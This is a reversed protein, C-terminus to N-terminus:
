HANRNQKRQQDIDAILQHRSRIRAVAEQHDRETKRANNWHHYREMLRFMKTPKWRAKTELEYGLERMVGKNVTEVLEIEQPTLQSQYKRANEPNVKNALNKWFPNDVVSENKSTQVEFCASDIPEGVFKLVNSLTGETDSTLQEYSVFHAPYSLTRFQRLCEKQEQRWCRAAQLPTHLAMPVKLWSAVYARPDRYLYIFKPDQYYRDLPGIFDFLCNEKCIFRPTNEAAIKARYVSDFGGILDKPRSADFIQDSTQDLEWGYLPHNAIAIMDHLLHRMNHENDFPLYNTALKSFTALLHPARPGHLNPHNDLLTRLLNSGSRESSVIFVPNM